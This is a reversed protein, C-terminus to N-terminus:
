SLVVVTSSRSSTEDNETPSPPLDVYKLHEFMQRREVQHVDALYSYDKEWWVTSQPPMEKLKEILQAVTM